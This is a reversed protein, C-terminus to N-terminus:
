ALVGALALAAALAAVVAALALVGALALAAAGGVLLGLLFVLLFGGLQQLSASARSTSEVVIHPLTRAKAPGSGGAAQPFFCIPWLFVSPVSAARVHCDAARYSTPCAIAHRKPAKPLGTGAYPDAYDVAHLLM